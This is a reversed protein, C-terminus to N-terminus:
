KIEDKILPSPAAITIGLELLAKKLHYNIKSYHKLNRLVNQNNNNITDFLSTSNKRCELVYKLVAAKLFDELQPQSHEKDDIDDDIIIIDDEPDELHKMKEDVNQVVLSFSVESTELADTETLDVFNNDSAELRQRVKEVDEFSPCGIRIGQLDEDSIDLNDPELKLPINNKQLSTKTKSAELLPEIIELDNSITEIIEQGEIRQSKWRNEQIETPDLRKLRIGIFKQGNPDIQTSEADKPDRRTTEADRSDRRATEVDKSYRRTAEVDKSYRRTAEVDKSGRRSAEVDKSGRRSAKADKPDRRTTEANKSERRTAEADKSNRLTNEVKKPNKRTSEVKSIEKLIDSIETMLKLTNETDKARHKRTKREKQETEKSETSKRSSKAESAESQITEVEHPRKRSLNEESEVASQETETEGSNVVEAGELQQCYQELNVFNDFIGFNYDMDECSKGMAELNEPSLDGLDELNTDLEGAMVVTEADEIDSEVKEKKIDEYFESLDVEVDSVYIVTNESDSASGSNLDWTDDSDCDNDEIRISNSPVRNLNSDNREKYIRGNKYVASQDLSKIEFLAVSLPVSLKALLDQCVNNEKPNPCRVDSVQLPQSDNTSESQVAIPNCGREPTRLFKKSITNDCFTEKGMKLKIRVLKKDAKRKVYKHKKRMHKRTDTVCKFERKCISCKSGIIMVSCPRTRIAKKIFGLQLYDFFDTQTISAPSAPLGEDDDEEEYYYRKTSTM